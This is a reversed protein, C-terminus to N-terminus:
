KNVTTKKNQWLYVPIGLLVCVGSILVGEVDTVIENYIVFAAGAIAIIPTLPYLPVTFKTKDLGDRKRLIFIGFFTMVYFVYVIFVAKASLWDANSFIMMIMALTLTVLTANMPSQTKMNLRGIQKYFPLERDRGMAYMLRPFSMIKGNITGAISIIIGISLLKGGLVGFARTVMYSVTNDGQQYIAEVSITKFVAFTVLTYVAIVLTIGIIIAKPLMKRPNKLEEGLNTVLIWGDYAFLTGLIAVGFNGTHAQVTQISAGIAHENGFFLGFLIIAAIPIVKVIVSTIAFFASYRNSLLNLGGIIIMVLLSTLTQWQSSINFFDSILIALYISLSAIMAPGYVIVQMWGSLFGWFRGYVNEMYTYLGGAKPLKAAIEAVTLGGTLTIIGGIIWALLAMSTSGTEKLVTAQRIFIGAGIVTGVVLSLASSLGLNRKLQVEQKDEMDAEVEM